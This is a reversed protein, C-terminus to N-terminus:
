ERLLALMETPTLHLRECLEAQMQLLLPLCSQMTAADAPYRQHLAELRNQISVIHAGEVLKDAFFVLKEEWTRPAPGDGLMSFLLHREAIEALAPQNKQRLLKAAYTGHNHSPQTYKASLKALDHLLGGRHALVPDVDEGAARLREALRYACAAVMQVHLLLLSSTGQEQLWGLCTQFDPLSLNNLAQPLQTLSTIEANHLPLGGACASSAPNLWITSWGAQRAGVMDVYLDDGVMVLRSSPLNILESIRLFYAPDPKNHGTEKSTFVHSFYEGLGVRNLAALVQAANSNVANTAVVLQYSGNLAALTQLAGPTAEVQPWDVMAGDYEPFVKMLTDGWDFVLAPIENPLATM